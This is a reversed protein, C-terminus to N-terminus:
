SYSIFLDQKENIETEEYYARFTTIFLCNM